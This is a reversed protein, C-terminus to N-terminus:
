SFIEEEIFDLPRSCKKGLSYGNNAYFNAYCRCQLGNTVDINTLQLVFAIFLTIKM